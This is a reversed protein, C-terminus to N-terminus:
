LRLGAIIGQDNLHLMPAPMAVAATSVAGPNRGTNNATHNEAGNDRGLRLALLPDIVAHPTIAAVIEAAHSIETAITQPM